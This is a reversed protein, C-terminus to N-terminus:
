RLELPTNSIPKIKSRNQHNQADRSGRPQYAFTDGTHVHSRTHVPDITM